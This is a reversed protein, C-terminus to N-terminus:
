SAASVVDKGDASVAWSTFDRSSSLAAWGKPLTKEVRRRAEAQFADRISFARFMAPLRDLYKRAQGFNGATMKSALAM